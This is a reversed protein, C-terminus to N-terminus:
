IVVGQLWWGPLMAAAGFDIPDEHTGPDEVDDEDDVCLTDFYGWMQEDTYRSPASKDAGEAMKTFAEWLAPFRAKDRHAEVFVMAGGATLWGGDNCKHAAAELVKLSGSAFPSPGWKTLWRVSRTEIVQLTGGQGVREEFAKDGLASMGVSWSNWHTAHINREAGCLRVGEPEAPATAEASPMTEAVPEDEGIPGLEEKNVSMVPPPPPAVRQIAALSAPALQM